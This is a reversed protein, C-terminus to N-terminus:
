CSDNLILHIVMHLIALTSGISFFINMHITNGLLCSTGCHFSEDILITFHYATVHLHIGRM